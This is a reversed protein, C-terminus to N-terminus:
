KNRPNNLYVESMDKMQKLIESNENSRGALLNSSVSRANNYEISSRQENIQFEKKDQAKHSDEGNVLSTFQPSNQLYDSRRDKKSNYQNGKKENDISGYENVEIKSDVNM